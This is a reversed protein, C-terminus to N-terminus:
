VHYIIRIVKLISIVMLEFWIHKLKAQMSLQICPYSLQNRFHYNPVCRHRAKHSQRKGLFPCDRLYLVSNQLVQLRRLQILLLLM